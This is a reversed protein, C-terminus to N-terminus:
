AAAAGRRRQGHSGDASASSGRRVDLAVGRRGVSAFRTRVREIAQEGTDVPLTVELTGGTGASLAHTALTEAVYPSLRDVMEVVGRGAGAALVRAHIPLGDLAAQDDALRIV